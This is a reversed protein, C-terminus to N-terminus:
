RRDNHVQGLQHRHGEGPSAYERSREVMVHRSGLRRLPDRRDANSPPLPAVDGLVEVKNHIATTATGGVALFQGCHRKINAQGYPAYNKAYENPDSVEIRSVVYV